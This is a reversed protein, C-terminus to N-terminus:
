TGDDGNGLVFELLEIGLGAPDLVVSVLDEGRLETAGDFDEGLRARAGAIEGGDADGVLAFSYDHPVAGGALGDVGGDDPLVASGGGFACLELLGADGVVDGVSGAEDEVGVEGRGLDGPNEVVDGATAGACVLALQGEAGDVGPEDPVEGAAMAVDGVYGVGGAGQEVVNDLAFPVGFEEANEVDGGADERFDDPGALLDAFDGGGEAETASLNGADGAVLLGREEALEAPICALGLVGVAGAAKEELVDTGAEGARAIAEDGGDGGAGM